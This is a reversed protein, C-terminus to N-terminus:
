SFIEVVDVPLGVLLNLLDQGRATTCEGSARFCRHEACYDSLGPSIGGRFGSRCCTSDTAFAELEVSRVARRV